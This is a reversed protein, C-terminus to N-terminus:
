LGYGSFVNKSQSAHPCEHVICCEPFRYPHNNYRTSSDSRRAAALFDPTAAPPLFSQAPPLSRMLDTVRIGHEAEM